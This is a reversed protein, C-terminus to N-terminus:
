RAENELSLFVRSDERAPREVPQIHPSVPPRLEKLSEAVRPLQKAIYAHEAESLDPPLILVVGFSSAGSRMPYRWPGVVSEGEELKLEYVNRLDPGDPLAAEQNRKVSTLLQQDVKAIFKRGASLVNAFIASAVFLEEVQPCANRAIRFRSELLERFDSPLGGFREYADLIERFLPPKFFATRLANGLDSDGAKLSRVYDGFKSVRYEKRHRDLFGYQVLAAVKRGSIGGSSSSYGLADAIEDRSHPKADLESLEDLFLSHAEELSIAPYARSRSKKM